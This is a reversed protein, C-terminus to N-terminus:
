DVYEPPVQSRGLQYVAFSLSHAIQLYQHHRLLISYCYKAYDLQAENADPFRCKFKRLLTRELMLIDEARIYNVLLKHRHLEDFLSNTFVINM